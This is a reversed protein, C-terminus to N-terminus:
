DYGYFEKRKKDIIKSIYSQTVGLKEAIEAQTYGDARMRFIEGNEGAFLTGLECHLVMDDFNNDQYHSDYVADFFELPPETKNKKLQSKSYEKRVLNDARMKFYNSLSGKESNYKVVSYCLEIALLDYWENMDLHKLNIYWYILNHNDAVCDQQEKTLTM